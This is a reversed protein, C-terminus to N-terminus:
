PYTVLKSTKADYRQVRHHRLVIEVSGNGISEILDIIDQAIPVPLSTTRLTLVREGDPPNASVVTPPNM